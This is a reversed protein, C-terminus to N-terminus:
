IALSRKTFSTTKLNGNNITEMGCLCFGCRRMALPRCWWCCSRLSWSGCCLPWLAPGFGGGDVVVQEAAAVLRRWSSAVAETAATSRAAAVTLPRHGTPRGSRALSAACDTGPTPRDCSDAGHASTWGSSTLSDNNLRTNKSQTHDYVLEIYVDVDRRRERERAAALAHEVLLGFQLLRQLLLLFALLQVRLQVVLVLLQLLVLAEAALQATRDHLAGLAQLQALLLVGAGFRFVIVLQVGLVHLYPRFQPRRGIRLLVM